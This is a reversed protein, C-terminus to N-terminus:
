LPSLLLSPTHADHKLLDRLFTFTDRGQSCLSQVVTLIREAFRAGRESEVEFCMKRWLVAHRLAREAENNSIALGEEELWLWLGKETKLLSQAWSPPRPLEKCM